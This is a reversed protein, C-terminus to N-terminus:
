EILDSDCIKEAFKKAEDLYDFCVKRNGVKLIYYSENDFYYDKTITFDKDNDKYQYELPENNREGPETAPYLYRTVKWNGKAM